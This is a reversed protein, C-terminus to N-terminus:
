YSVERDAWATSCAHQAMATLVAQLAAGMPQAGAGVGACARAHAGGGCAAAGAANNRRPVQATANLSGPNPKPNPSPSAHLQSAALELERVEADSPPARNSVAQAAGCAEATCDVAAAGNASASANPQPLAHDGSACAAMKEADAAPQPGSGLDAARVGGAAAGGIPPLSRKAPPDTEQNAEAACPDGSQEGGDSAAPSSGAEGEVSDPVSEVAAGAHARGLASAPGGVRCPAAMAAAAVMGGGGPAKAGHFLGDPEANLTVTAAADGCARISCEVGNGGSGGAAGLADGGLGGQLLAVARAPSGAAAGVAAAACGALALACEASAGVADEALAVRQRKAAPAAECDAATTVARDARGSASKGRAMGDAARAHRKGCARETRCPGPSAARPAAHAPNCPSRAGPNHGSLHGTCQTPVQQAAGAGAGEKEPIAGPSGPSAADEVAGQEADGARDSVSGPEGGPSSPSAAPAAADLQAAGVGGAPNGPESDPCSPSAAHGTAGQEAAAVLGAPGGPDAGRSSPSDARGGTELQATMATGGSEVHQSIPRSGARDYEAPSSGRLAAPDSGLQSAPGSGPLAVPSSGPHEEQAPSSRLAAWADQSAADLRTYTM